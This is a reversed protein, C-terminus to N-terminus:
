ANNPTGLPRFNCYKVSINCFILSLFTLIRKFFERFCTSFFRIEAFYIDGRSLGHGLTSPALFFSFWFNEFIQDFIRGESKQGLFMQTQDVAWSNPPFVAEFCYLLLLCTFEGRACTWTSFYYYTKFYDVLFLLLAYYNVVNFFYPANFYDDVKPFFTPVPTRVGVEQDHVM